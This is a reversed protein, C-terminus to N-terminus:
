FPNGINIWGSGTWRYWTSTTGYVYIVGGSWLIKSGYGGAAQSGNLLIAQGWGITWVSGWSDVIQSVNPVQTGDPSSSPGGPQSAGVNM